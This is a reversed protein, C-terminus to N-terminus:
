IKALQHPDEPLFDLLILKQDTTVRAKEKVFAWSTVIGGSKRANFRIM